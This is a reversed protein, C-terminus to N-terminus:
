DSSALPDAVPELEALLQGQTVIEEAAVHWKKVVFPRPLAHPVLTRMSEILVLTEHASTRAGERYLLAHVRGSVLASIQPGSPRPKDSEKLLALKPRARRVPATWEGIRVQWREDSLPYACVQLARGDPVVIEGSLGHVQPSAPSTWRRPASKWRLIEPTAKLWQDSVLYPLEWQDCTYACVSAYLRIREPDPRVEPLFEEDVFSAHFLGERVWPHMVLEALFRQNTRLSGALWIEDLVGRAMHLAQKRDSAHVNGVGLL